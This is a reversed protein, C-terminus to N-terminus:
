LDMQNLVYGNVYCIPAMFFVIFFHTLKRLTILLKMNIM